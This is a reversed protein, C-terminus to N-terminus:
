KRKGNEKGMAIGVDNMQSIMQLQQARDDSMGYVGIGLTAQLVKLDELHNKLLKNNANTQDIAYWCAAIENGNAGTVTSFKRDLSDINGYAKVAWNRYMAANAMGAAAVIKASNVLEEEPFTVNKGDRADKALRKAYGAIVPDSSNSDLVNFGLKNDVYKIVEDTNPLMTQFYNNGGNISKDYTIETQALILDIENPIAEVSYDINDFIEQMKELTYFVDKPNKMLQTADDWIYEVRAKSKEFWSQMNAFNQRMERYYMIENYAFKVANRTQTYIMVLTTLIGKEEKSPNGTLDKPKSVIPVADGAEIPSVISM